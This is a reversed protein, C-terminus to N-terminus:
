AVPEEPSQTEMLPIIGQEKLFEYLFMRGRQTWKTSIRSGDEGTKGDVYHFTDSATYGKAQYKSYLLWVGGQKYQIGLDHLLKNFRVASMGYDKAIVSVSVIDPSHLVMDCYTAKAGLEAVQVELRARAEQEAKLSTLLQIGFDPDAIIRNITVPTAYAGHRRITPLVESTVWHKFQKATPLKSSMILSYLGSENIIVQNPNGPMGDRFAVTDKDEDDVHKALADRPNSYGLVEAVDKGVFWAEGEREITRVQQDGYDFIQLEDM